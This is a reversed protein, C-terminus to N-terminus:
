ATTSSVCQAPDYLARTIRRRARVFWYGKAHAIASSSARHVRAINGFPQIGDRSRPLKIVTQLSPAATAAQTSALPLSCLSPRLWESLLSPIHANVPTPPATESPSDLTTRGTTTKASATAKSPARDIENPRPSAAGGGGAVPGGASIQSRDDRKAPTSNKRILVM